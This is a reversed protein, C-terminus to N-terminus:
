IIKCAWKEADEITPFAAIIPCGDEGNILVAYWGIIDRVTM